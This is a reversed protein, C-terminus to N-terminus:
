GRCVDMRGASRIIERMQDPLVAVAGDSCELMRALPRLAGAIDALITRALLNRQEVTVDSMSVGRVVEAVFAVFAEEGADLAADVASLPIDNPTNYITEVRDEDRM